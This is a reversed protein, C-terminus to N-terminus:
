GFGFALSISLKNERLETVLKPNREISILLIDRYPYLVEPYSDVLLPFHIGWDLNHLDIQYKTQDEWPPEARYIADVAKNIESRLSRIQAQKEQQLTRQQGEEFGNEVM